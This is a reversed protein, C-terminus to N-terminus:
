GLWTCDIVINLLPLTISLVMLGLIELFIRLDIGTGSGEVEFCGFICFYFAWGHVLGICLGNSGTGKASFFGFICFSSSWSYGIGNDKGWLTLFDEDTFSWESIRSSNLCTLILM